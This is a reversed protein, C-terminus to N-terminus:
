DVFWDRAPHEVTPALRPLDPQAAWRVGNALVRRIEPQQYVPYQQDGPSFYFIV